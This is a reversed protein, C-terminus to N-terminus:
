YNPRFLEEVLTAEAKTREALYAAAFDYLAASYPNNGPTDDPRINQVFKEVETSGLGRTPFWDFEWVLELVSRQELFGAWGLFCGIFPEATTPLLAEDLNGGYWTGDVSGAKIESLLRSISGSSMRGMVDRLQGRAEANIPSPDYEYM